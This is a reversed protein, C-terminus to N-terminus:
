LNPSNRPIEIHFAPDDPPPIVKSVAPHARVAALFATRQSTSMSNPDVDFTFHTTSCHKSVNSPGVEMIKDLMLQIVADRPKDKNAAFVDVVMGGPVAYLRKNFDVGKFLCNDYMVRAQEAPTRAGSTVFGRSLGAAKLIEKLVKAAPAPLAIGELTPEAAAVGILAALTHGGPDVVGDPAQFQLVRRQFEEITLITQADCTGSVTMPMLPSLKAINQNLLTQIVKVDDSHNDGGRGVSGGITPM